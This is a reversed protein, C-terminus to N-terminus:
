LEKYLIKIKVRKRLPRSSLLNQVAHYPTNESNASGQNIGSHWDSKNCYNAFVQTFLLFMTGSTLTAM